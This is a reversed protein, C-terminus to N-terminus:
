LSSPSAQPAQSHKEAEMKRWLAPAMGYQKAFWRTFSSPIGFGLLQAIESLSYHQNEMYRIVLDRQVDNLLESFVTGADKLQRQLTRVNLGLGEAIQDITARGSPLAMYIAKRVEVVISNGMANPFSDVLRLAYGAMVPDAAPNPYDLDSAACVFGNFDSGFEIACNFVRWHVRLDSPAEHTFHVNQPKWQPGILANGTRHLVGLAFEIAQRTAGGSDTVIEERIIVNRGVDEIQMALSENMLHRYQMLSLLVDRMTPQHSLLLSVAGFHSLQRLEAMLLGFSMSGSARASEELLAVAADIPIRQEPNTFITGKLGVKNLQQQPNLGLRQAVELYNALVAARVM